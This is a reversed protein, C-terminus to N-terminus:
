IEGNKEFREIARELKFRMGDEIMKNTYGLNILLALASAVVDIAEGALNERSGKGRRTKCIEKLLETCEEEIINTPDNADIKAIKKILAFTTMYNM